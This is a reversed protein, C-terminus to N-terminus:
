REHDDSSSRCRRKKCEARYFKCYQANEALISANIAATRTRRTLGYLKTIESAATAELGMDKAIKCIGTENEMDDVGYSESAVIVQAGDGVLSKITDTVLQDSLNEDCIFRNKLRIFRGSGLNIDKM